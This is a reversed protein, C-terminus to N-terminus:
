SKSSNKETNSPPSSVEEKSEKCSDPDTLLLNTAEEMSNTMKLANRTMKMSFGMDLLQSIDADSVPTGNQYYLPDHKPTDKTVGFLKGMLSGSKKEEKKEEKKGDKKVISGSSKLDNYEVAKIKTGNLAPWNDRVFQNLIAELQYRLKFKKKEKSNNVNFQFFEMKPERQAELYYDSSFTMKCLIPVKPDIGWANCVSEDLIDKYPIQMEVDVTELLPM